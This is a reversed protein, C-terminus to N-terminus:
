HIFAPLFSLTMRPEFLVCFNGSKDAALLSIFRSKAPGNSLLKPVDFYKSKHSSLKVFSGEALTTFLVEAEEICM